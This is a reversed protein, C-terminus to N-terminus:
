PVQTVLEGSPLRTDLCATVYEAGGAKKCESSIRDEEAWHLRVAIGIDRSCPIRVSGSLRACFRFGRDIDVFSAIVGAFGLLCSAADEGEQTRCVRILEDEQEIYENTLLRGIGLFCASRNPTSVNKCATFMPQMAGDAAWSVLQILYYYCVNRVRPIVTRCLGLYRDPNNSPLQTSAIKNAHEMFAGKACFHQEWGLQFQECVALARQVDNLYYTLGHGVGHTCHAHDLSFLHQPNQPCLWGLDPPMGSPLGGLYAALVTHQCGYACGEKCLAMAESFNGVRSYMGESIRHAIVHCRDGFRKSNDALQFLTLMALTAGHTNLIEVLRQSYCAQFDSFSPPPSGTPECTERLLTVPDSKPSTRMDPGNSQVAPSSRVPPACGVTLNTVVILIITLYFSPRPM